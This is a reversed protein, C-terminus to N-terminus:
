LSDRGFGASDLFADVNRALEDPVDQSTIIGFFEPPWSGKSAPAPLRRRVEAIVVAVQDDPLEDVLEHLEHRDVSM